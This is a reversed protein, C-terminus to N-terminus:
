EDTTSEQNQENLLEEQQEVEECLAIIVEKKTSALKKQINSLQEKYFKMASEDSFKSVINEIRKVLDAKKMNKLQSAVEREEKTVYLPTLPLDARQKGNMFVEKFVMERNASAVETVDALGPDLAKGDVSVHSKEEFPQSM